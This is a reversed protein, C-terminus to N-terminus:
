AVARKAAKTTKAAATDAAEEHRVADAVKEAEQLQSNLFDRVSKVLFLRKGRSNGPRRLSVSRIHGTSLLDYALTRRIGFIAHLSQSDVFEPEVDVTALTPEAITRSGINKTSTKM